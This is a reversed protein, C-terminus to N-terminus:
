LLEKGGSLSRHPEAGGAELHLYAPNFEALERLRPVDRLRVRRAAMEVLGEGRLQKLMRNVHVSTLGLVDALQEQTLPLEFSVADNSSNGTIRVALECLLHALRQEASKRGLGVAWQSQIANEMLALRTFANAINVDAAALSRAAHRPVSTVLGPTLMRVGFGPRAFALADLNAVDGPLALGVIQRRGDRTTRYRGAWGELLIYIQEAQDGERVLDAHAATSRAPPATTELARRSESSAILSFFRKGAVGPKERPLLHPDEGRADASLAPQHHGSAPRLAEIQPAGM